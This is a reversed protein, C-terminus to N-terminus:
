RRPGGASGSPAATRTCGAANRRVRRRAEASKLAHLREAVLVRDDPHTVDQVNLRLLEERRYGLLDCVKRNAALWRGEAPLRSMGCPAQEFLTQPAEDGNHPGAHPRGPAEHVMWRLGCPLSHRDTVVAVTLAAAISAGDRPQLRLRLEDVRNTESLCRMLESRFARRDEAAVFLALPKGVLFREPVRLLRAAARNAECITADLDTVLYGHPAFHFLEQYRRREEEAAERALELETNQRRLEEAVVELEELAVHLEEGIAGVDPSTTVPVAARGWAAARDQLTQLDLSLQQHNM